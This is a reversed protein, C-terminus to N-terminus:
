LHFAVLHNSEICHMVNDMIILSNILIVNMENIYPRLGHFLRDIYIPGLSFKLLLREQFHCRTRGSWMYKHKGLVSSLSSDNQHM